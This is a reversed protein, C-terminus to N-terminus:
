TKARFFSSAALYIAYLIVGVLCLKTLNIPTYGWWRPFTVLVLLGYIRWFSHPKKYFERITFGLLFAIIVVGFYGMWIFFYASILGGGGVPFVSSHLAALNAAEKLSSFSLPLNFLFSIFSTVRFDFDIYGADAMGLLRMSAYYVDASTSLVYPNIDPRFIIEFFKNIPSDSVVLAPLNGRVIGLSLLVALSIGTLFSLKLKSYSKLYNHGAFGWLLLVQIVEIRGGYILTKFSYGIILISLIIWQLRNNKEMFLWCFLSFVIFYEHLASKESLGSGYGASIISEGSLGFLLSILCPLLSIYFIVKNSKCWERPNSLNVDNVGRLMCGLVALFVTNLFAVQNILAESQFDDYVSIQRHSFYHHYPISIYSFIFVYFIILPISKRVNILGYFWVVLTIMWTFGNGSEVKNIGYHIFVLFILFLFVLIQVPAFTFCRKKQSM